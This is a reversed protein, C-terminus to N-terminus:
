SFYKSTGTKSWRFACIWEFCCNSCLITHFAPNETHTRMSSLNRRVINKRNLSWTLRHFSSEWRKKNNKSHWTLLITYQEDYILFVFFFPCVFFFLTTMDREDDFMFFFHVLFLLFPLLFLYCCRVFFMKGLGCFQVNVRICMRVFLPFQNGAYSFYCCFFLLFVFIFCFALWRSFMIAEMSRLATVYVSSLFVLFLYFFSFIEVLHNDIIHLRLPISRFSLLSTLFCLFLSPFRLYRSLKLSRKKTM